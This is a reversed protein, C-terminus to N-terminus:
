SPFEEQSFAVVKNKGSLGLTFHFQRMPISTLAGTLAVRALTSPLPVGWASYRVERVGYEVPRAHQLGLAALLEVVPSAEVADKQDNPSYGADIATWAGRPDFNFSGGMPTLVNFPDKVLAARDENWLQVLGRTKREGQAGRKRQKESPKKCTGHLMARAIGFASRNGSYLKFTNRDSGDAWHSVEIVSHGNSEICIPLTMKDATKAPFTDSIRLSSGRGRFDEGDDDNAEGEDEGAESGGVNCGLPYFQKIEADAFFQLVVEFPNQDGHACLKFQIKSADTWDFVGEANGLLVDAAELFGLSAFVQGPNLLDVPIIAKAM